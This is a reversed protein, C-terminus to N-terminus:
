EGESEYGSIYGLYTQLEAEVTELDAELATRLANDPDGELQRYIDSLRYYLRGIEAYDDSRNCVREVTAVRRGGSYVVNRTTETTAM